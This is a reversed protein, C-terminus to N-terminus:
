FPASAGFVARWGEDGRALEMRLITVAPSHFRVGVGYDTKLDGVDLDGFRPAVHGADAFLAMDMGLRNPIWRWEATFLMAHRDRFRGTSYGRLTSGGGLAPLLFYPVDDAGSSVSDTRARLSLVWTERLIPVHQVVESRVLGFTGEGGRTQNFATYTVRYRGGTRSYGPSTMGWLLSLAGQAKVYAPEAGLHPASAADYVDSVAPYRGQPSPEKYNDYGGLGSVAIWTAPRAVVEGEAYTQNLRFNARDGRTTDMGLGYFGVQTADRWGARAGVDVRGGALQTSGVGVQFLKYNKLSYMGHVDVFTSYGTFKRYGAGLTFGGGPYISGFVPYIGKPTGGTFWRGREVREFFREVRTPKYPASSQAKRAQAEAIVEARTDQAALPAGCLIALLLCSGVRRVHTIIV